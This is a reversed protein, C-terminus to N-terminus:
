PAVSWRAAADDGTSDFQTNLLCKLRDMACRGAGKLLVGGPRRLHGAKRGTPRPPATGIGSSRESKSVAVKTGTALRVRRAAQIRSIQTYGLCGRQYFREKKTHSILLQCAFDRDESTLKRLKRYASWAATSTEDVSLFIEIGSTTGGVRIGADLCERVIEQVNPRIEANNKQSEPHWM